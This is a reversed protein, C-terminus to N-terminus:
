SQVKHWYTYWSSKIGEDLLKILRMQWGIAREPIPQTEKLSLHCCNSQYAPCVGPKLLVPCSFLYLLVLSFLHSLYPLSLLTNSTNSLYTCWFWNQLTKLDRLWSLVFNTKDQNFNILCSWDLEKLKRLYQGNDMLALGLLRGELFSSKGKLKPKMKPRSIISSSTTASNKKQGSANRKKSKHPGAPESSHCWQLLQFFKRKKSPVITETLESDQKRVPLNPKRKKKDSSLVKGATSSMANAASALAAAYSTVIRPPEVQEEGGLFTFFFCCCAM